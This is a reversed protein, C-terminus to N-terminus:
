VVVRCQWVTVVVGVRMCTCTCQWQWVLPRVVLGSGSLTILQQGVKFAEQAEQLAQGFTKAGQATFVFFKAVNLSM